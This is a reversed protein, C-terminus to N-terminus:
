KRVSFRLADSVADAPTLVSLGEVFTGYLRGFDRRDGTVLAHARAALAAALIPLDKESLDHRAARRLDTQSPEAVLHLDAILLGLQAVCEPAKVAINRAAEELAYHSSVLELRRAKALRFLASGNGDANHAATFIVNADLFFRRM